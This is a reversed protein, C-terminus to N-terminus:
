SQPIAAWRTFFEPAYSISADPVHLRGDDDDWFVVQQFGVRENDALYPEGDQPFTAIPEWDLWPESMPHAMQELGM